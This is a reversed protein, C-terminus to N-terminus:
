KLVQDFFEVVRREYEEPAVQLYDGHGAGPVVWLSTSPGAAALQQRGGVLSVERSGYILLVPRPEIRGIVDTPSLQNIDMGTVLRYIWRAAGNFLTRYLAILGTQPSPGLSEEPFDGYGGEAVVARLGPLQAAAMVATAGASSFGLVGIRNSDVEPRTLLYALADAVEATEYFGLSLAGMDACRRSEFTLVSYGHRRLVDAEHLRNGRGQNLAPPIIVAAGNAGPIFYGQFAGGARAEITVDEWTYGYDGPTVGSAWCPVHLLGFMFLAGHGVPLTFLAWTLTFLFFGSLRLWYRRSFRTSAPLAESRIM